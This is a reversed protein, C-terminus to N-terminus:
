GTRSHDWACYGIWEGWAHSIGFYYYFSLLFTGTNLCDLAFFFFLQRGM